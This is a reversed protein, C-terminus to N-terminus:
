DLYWNLAGLPDFYLLCITVLGFAAWARLRWDHRQRIAQYVAILVAVPALPVLCFFIVGLWADYVYSYPLSWSEPHGYRPAYGIRYFVYAWSAHIALLLVLEAVFIVRTTVEVIRLM